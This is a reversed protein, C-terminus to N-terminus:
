TNVINWDPLEDRKTEAEKLKLLYKQDNSYCQPADRTYEAAWHFPYSICSQHHKWLLLRKCQRRFQSTGHPIWVIKDTTKNTEEFDFPPIQHDTVKQRRFENSM